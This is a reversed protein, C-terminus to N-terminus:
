KTPLQKNQTLKKLGPEGQGRHPKPHHSNIGQSKLASMASPVESSTDRTMEWDFRDKHKRFSILRFGNLFFFGTTINLTFGSPM